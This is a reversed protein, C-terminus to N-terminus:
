LNNSKIRKIIESTSIGETYNIKKVNSTLIYNKLYHQNEDETATAYIFIDAGIDHLIQDNIIYPADIVVKDVLGSIELTKKREEINLIPKRKNKTIDQDSHLGLILFDCETKAQKLFLMHGYHFLDACMTSYGVVM